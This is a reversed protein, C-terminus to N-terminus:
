HLSYRIKIKHGNNLQIELTPDGQDSEKRVIVRQGDPLVGVEGDTIERLKAAKTRGYDEHAMPLEGKRKYHKTKKTGNKTDNTHQADKLVEEVEVPLKEELM